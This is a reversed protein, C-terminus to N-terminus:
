RIWCPQRLPAIPNRSLSFKGLLKGLLKELLSDPSRELPTMGVRFILPNPKAAIGGSCFTPREFRGPRVVVRKSDICVTIWDGPLRCIGGWNGGWFLDIKV